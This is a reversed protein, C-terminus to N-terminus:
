KKARSKKKSKDNATEEELMKDVDDDDVFRLDLEDEAIVLHDFWDGVLDRDAQEDEVRVSQGARNYRYTPYAMSEEEKTFWM